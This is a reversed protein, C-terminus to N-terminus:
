SGGGNGGEVPEEERRFRLWLSRPAVIMVIAFMAILVVIGREFLEVLSDSGIGSAGVFYALLSVASIGLITRWPYELKANILRAYIEVGVLLVGFGVSTAIAAAQLGYTPTFLYIGLLNVAAAIVSALWIWKQHGYTLTIGNMPIAELGFLAYGLVFWPALEAAAHYQSDIFLNIAVPALLAGALSVAAICAVQLEVIRRVRGLAATLAAGAQAKGARAYDAMLAQNIGVLIVMVPLAMNAGLSYVGVASVSVIGAVVLRDVLNLSWMSLFHPMVPLSKGLVDRLLARDLSGPLSYPVVRAAVALTLAAGIGSAILWGEVGADLVVLAIVILAPTILANVLTLRVFDALRNEARLLALPLTCAAVYLASWLLTLAFDGPSILSSGALFPAAILSAAAAMALPALILFTWVHSVYRASAEPDDELHVSTRFVAIDTGLAFIIIAVAYISLLISLQGYEAPTLVTTFVPLLLFMIARGLATMGAFVAGPGLITKLPARVGSSAGELETRDAVETSVAV